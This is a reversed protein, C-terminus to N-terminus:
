LEKRWHYRFIADTEGRLIKKNKLKKVLLPIHLQGIGSMDLGIKRLSTRNMRGSMFLRDSVKFFFPSTPLESFLDVIFDEYDTKFMFLYPDYTSACEPFYRTFVTCCDPLRNFWEYIMTPSILHKRMIITLPKRLNYKFERFLTEDESGWPIKKDWHTKITEKPEYDGPQFTEITKEMIKTALEWSRNPAFAAHYDSRYGEVLINGEIDIEKKAIVMLNAFGILVAHYAVDQDESYKSYAELADECNVLYVYERMNAYSRRRIQPKTVYGLDFAERVITGATRPDVQLRSAIDKIYRRPNGSWLLEYVTRYQDKRRTDRKRQMRGLYTVEEM